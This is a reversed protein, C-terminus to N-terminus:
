HASPHLPSAPIPLRAHVEAVCTVPRTKEARERKTYTNEATARLEARYAADSAGHERYATALERLSQAAMQTAERRAEARFAPPANASGGEIASLRNAALAADIRRRAEFISVSMKSAASLARVDDSIDGVVVCSANVEGAVHASGRYTIRLSLERGDLVAREIASRRAASAHMRFSAQFPPTGSMVHADGVLAADTDESVVELSTTDISVRVEHFSLVGDSLAEIQRLREQAEPAVALQTTVLLTGTGSIWAIQTTEGDFSPAIAPRCPYYHFQGINGDVALLRVGGIEPGHDTM